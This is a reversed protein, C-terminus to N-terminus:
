PERPWGPPRRQRPVDPAARARRPSPRSRDVRDSPDAASALVVVLALAVVVTGLAILWPLLLGISPTLYGTGM